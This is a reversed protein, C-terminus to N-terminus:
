TWPSSLDSNRTITGLKILSLLKGKAIGGKGAAFSACHCISVMVLNTFSLLIVCHNTRRALSRSGSRCTGVLDKLRGNTREWRLQSLLFTLTLRDVADGAHHVQRRAAPGEGQGEGV